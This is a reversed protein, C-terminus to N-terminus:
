SPLATGVLLGQENLLRGVGVARHGGRFNARRKGLLQRRERTHARRLKIGLDLKFLASGTMQVPKHAACAAARRAARSAGPTGCRVLQYARGTPAGSWNTRLASWAQSSRM